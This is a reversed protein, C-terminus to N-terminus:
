IFASKLQHIHISNILYLAIFKDNRKEKNVVSFLNCVMHMDEVTIWITGIEREIEALTHKLIAKRSQNHEFNNRLSM